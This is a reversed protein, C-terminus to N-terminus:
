RVDKTEKEVVCKCIAKNPNVHFPISAIKYSEGYRYTYVKETRFDVCIQYKIQLHHNLANDNIPDYAVVKDGVEVFMQDESYMFVELGEIEAIKEILELSM